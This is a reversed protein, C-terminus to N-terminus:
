EVTISDATYGIKVLIDKISKKHNGQLVIVDDKASGGCALKHKLEKATSSLNNKEIGEVVTVLKRFKKKTTYIRIRKTEEKDLVECVCLDKLMGCKKCIEAM